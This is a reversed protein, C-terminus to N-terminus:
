LWNDCSNRDGGGAKSETHSNLFLGFLKRVTRDTFNEFNEEIEVFM